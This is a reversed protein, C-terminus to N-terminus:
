TKAITIYAIISLRYDSNNIYFLTAAVSGGLLLLIAAVWMKTYHKNIFNM